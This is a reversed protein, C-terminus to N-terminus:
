YKYEYRKILILRYWETWWKRNFNAKCNCSHCVLVLNEFVCNEKDYDIHHINLPNIKPIIKTRCTPNLCINGDRDFIHKRFEEDKFIPCYGRFSTGDRWNPNNCMAAVGSVIRSNSIKERVEKSHTKGYMPNNKGDYVGLKAKSMKRKAENTHTKKYFNNFEGSNACKTTCIKSSKIGLFEKNCNKCIKIHYTARGKRFNGRNSLYVKELNDWCIKM